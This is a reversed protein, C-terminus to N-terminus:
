GGHILRIGERSEVQYYYAKFSNFSQKTSFKIDKGFYESILANVVEAEKPTPHDRYNDTATGITCVGLLLNEFIRRETITPPEGLAEHRNKLYEIWDHNDGFIAELDEIVAKYKNRMSKRQEYKRLQDLKGAEYYKLFLNTTHLLKFLSYLEDDGWDYFYKFPNNSSLTIQKIKQFDIQSFFYLTPKAKQSFYEKITQNNEKAVKDFTELEEKHELFSTYYDDFIKLEALFRDRGM